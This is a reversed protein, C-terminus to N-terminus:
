NASALRECSMNIWAPIPFDAVPSEQSSKMAVMDRWQFHGIVGSLVGAASVKLLTSSLMSHSPVPPSDSPITKIIYGQLYHTQSMLGISLIHLVWKQYGKVWNEFGKELKDIEQRSIKWQLCINILSVLDVFHKFYKPRRFHNQLVVPGVFLIWFSWM